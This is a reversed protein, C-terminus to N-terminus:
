LLGHRRRGHHDGRSDPPLRQVLRGTHRLLRGSGHHPRPAVARGHQHQGLHREARRQVQDQNVLRHDADVTRRGRHVLRGQAAHHRAGGAHQDRRRGLLEVGPVNAHPLRQGRLCVRRRQGHSRPAACPAPRQRRRAHRLLKQRGLLAREARLVFRHLHQGRQHASAYRFQGAALRFLIRRYLYRQGAAHRRQEM